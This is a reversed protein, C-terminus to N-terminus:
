PTPLGIVVDLVCTKAYDQIRKELIEGLKKVDAPSIKVPLNSLHNNAGINVAIPWGHRENTERDRISASGEIYFLYFGPAGPVIKTIDVRIDFTTSTGYTTKSATKLIPLLHERLEPRTHALRVVQARLSEPM